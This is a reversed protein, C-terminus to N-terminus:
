PQLARGLSNRVRAMSLRTQQALFPFELDQSRSSALAPAPQYSALSYLWVFKALLLIAPPAYRWMSFSEATMFPRTVLMLISFIVYIGYGLFIGSVNKGIPLEYYALLVGCILLLIAQVVRMLKELESVTVMATPNWVTALLIGDLFIAALAFTVLFRAMRASGPYDRFVRGFVEWIIGFGLAIHVFQSYWYFGLYYHRAYSTIWFFVLSSVLLCALYSFFFPYRRAVGSKLGRAFLISTVGFSILQFVHGGMRSQGWHLM